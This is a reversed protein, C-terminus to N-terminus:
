LVRQRERQYPIAEDTACRPRRPLQGGTDPRRVVPRRGGSRGPRVDVFGHRGLGQVVRVLHNKSIGYAESVEATSVVRGSNVALYMLVRLAYDAHLTLHM